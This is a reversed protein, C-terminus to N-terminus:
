WMGMFRPEARDEHGYFVLDGQRENLEELRALQDEDIEVGLGPGDPLEFCGDRYVWPETILDATQHHYHSDVAYPLVPLAAALQVQLATSIGAEGGSHFGIGLQFTQLTAAAKWTATIGGWDCPDLLQVDIAGLRIAQPLHDLQICCTNTALPVDLAAAVRSMGEIGWCPDEYFELDLTEFRRGWRISTEVSWLANPDFRIRAQPFADRLAATTEYEHEPPYVGGKMKITTVGHRQCLDRTHAVIEDPTTEGGAGDEGAVRYFVYAIMPIRTRQRAGLLQCLPRGTAKGMIDWCATELGSIAYKGANGQYMPLYWFNKLIRERDFPDEGLFFGKLDHLNALTQDGGCTEAIGEIGEDTQMRIVIRTWSRNVGGSWLMPAEFPINVKHFTVGTIKM